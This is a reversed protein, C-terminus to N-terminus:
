LDSSSAILDLLYTLHDFKYIVKLGCCRTVTGTNTVGDVVLLTQDDDDDAEYITKETVYGLKTIQVM